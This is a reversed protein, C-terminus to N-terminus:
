SVLFFLTSPSHQPLPFNVVVGIPCSHKVHRKRLAIAAAGFGVRHQHAEIGLPSEARYAIRGQVEPERSQQRPHHHHADAPRRAGRALHHM